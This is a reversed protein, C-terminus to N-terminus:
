IINKKTITRKKTKVIIYKIRADNVTFLLFAICFKRLILLKYLTSKDCLVATSTIQVKIGLKIKSKIANGEKVKNYPKSVKISLLIEM